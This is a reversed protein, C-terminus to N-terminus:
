ATGRENGVTETPCVCNKCQKITERTKSETPSQASGAEGRATLSPRVGLVLPAGAAGQPFLTM